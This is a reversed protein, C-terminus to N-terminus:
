SHIVTRLVKIPEQAQELIAELVGPSLELARWATDDIAPLPACDGECLSCATALCEAVHVIAPELIPTATAPQHHHRVAQCLSEPFSWKELLGGSVAAHDYGLFEREVEDLRRGQAMAHTMLRSQMEPESLLLFLLGIDHLLGAVFFREVSLGTKYGALLRALVACATSHHWFSRMDFVERPLGPFANIATIGLVLTCLENGGLLAVARPISDVEAPFGYLPSNVLRLLQAALAPDSSVVAAVNRASSQPSLLVEVVRQYIDPFSALSTTNKLVGQLSPWKLTRPLTSDNTLFGQGTRCAPPKGSIACYQAIRLLCFKYIEQMPEQDLGAQQFWPELFSDAEQFAEPPIDLAPPPSAEQSERGFIDVADIGWIKLIRLHKEDITAGAPMLLRGQRSYLDCALVMGTTLDSTRLLGM